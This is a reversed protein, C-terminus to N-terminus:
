NGKRTALTIVDQSGTQNIYRVAYYRFNKRYTKMVPVFVVDDTIQQHDTVLWIVQDDSGYILLQAPVLNYTLRFGWFRYNRVDDDEDTQTADGEKMNVEDGDAVARQVAVQRVIDQIEGMEAATMRPDLVVQIDLGTTNVGDAIDEYYIRYQARTVVITKDFPYDYSLPISEYLRWAAAANTRYHIHVWGYGAGNRASIKLLSARPLNALPAGALVGTGAPIDLTLVNSTLGDVVTDNDNITLARPSPGLNGLINTNINQLLTQVDVVSGDCNTLKTMTRLREDGDGCNPIDGVTLRKPQGTDIDAGTAPTMNTDGADARGEPM